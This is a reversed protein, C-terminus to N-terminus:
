GQITTPQSSTSTVRVSEMRIQGQRGFLSAFGPFYRVIFQELQVPYKKPRIHFDPHFFLESYSYRIRVQGPRFPKWKNIWESISLRNLEMVGTNGYRHLHKGFIRYLSRCIFAPYLNHIEMNYYNTLIRDMERLFRDFIVEPFHQLTQVSWVSTVSFDRLPLEAADACILLISSKQGLIKQAILLNGMSIDLGIIKGKQDTQGYWHWGYGIGIDLMWEKPLLHSRFQKAHMRMISICHHKGALRILDESDQNIQDKAHADRFLREDQQVLTETDIFIPIGSRIPFCRRCGSCILQNRDITLSLTSKCAPCALVCELAHALLKINNQEFQPTGHFGEENNIIMFKRLGHNLCCSRRQLRISL